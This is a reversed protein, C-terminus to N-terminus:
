ATLVDPKRAHSINTAISCHPVWKDPRYNPRSLHPGVRSHVSRHIARVQDPLQPVAWLILGIPTEFYGLSSFTVSLKPQAIFAADFADFLLQEAITEYIALTIHPPYHLSEMSPALELASWRRWLARIPDSTPSDSRLNIAYPM